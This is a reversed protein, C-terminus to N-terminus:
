HSLVPLYIPVIGAARVCAVSTPLDAELELVANQRM